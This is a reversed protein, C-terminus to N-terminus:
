EKRKSDRTKDHHVPIPGGDSSYHRHWAGLEVARFGCFLQAEMNPLLVNRNSADLPELLDGDNIEICSLRAPEGSWDTFGHRCASANPLGNPAYPSANTRPRCEDEDTEQVEM